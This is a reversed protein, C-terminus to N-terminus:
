WVLAEPAAAFLPRLEPMEHRRQMERWVTPHQRQLIEARVDALQPPEAGAARQNVYKHLHAVYDRFAARRARVLADRANLGLAKITYRAREHARTGEPQLPQFYFTGALDLTMLATADETRPDILVPTGDPPPVIPDGRRRAVDVSTTANDVFVAFHSRKPGNCPGCAYVYNRWAFVVDPYLTRPRVHEVEDALSDECYACRRAGSCMRDLVRKVEDFVANGVRNRAEFLRAAAAVRAPYDAIADVEAQYVQLGEAAGAALAIDPLQIM